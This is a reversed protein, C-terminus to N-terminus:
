VTLSRVLIATRQGLRLVKMGHGGTTMSDRNISAVRLGRCLLPLVACFLQVSLSLPQIRFLSPEYIMIFTLM